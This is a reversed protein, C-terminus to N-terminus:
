EYIDFIEIEGIKTKNEKVYNIVNLPTQWNKNYQDKLILYKTEKSESIEKIINEEGNYGLNGKLLMDYNKNYRDMPIMYISATADLIKINPNQQIYKDVNEIQKELNETIPINNFHNFTSFSSICKFYVYGNIITYYILFLIAFSAFFTIFTENLMKNVFIKRSVKSLVKYLEYLIVIITPLAGILFHIEDSIPFCVVFIALGYVCFIYLIRDKEFVVSKIWEYVFTIPVIISLVGVINWNMLNKYSKYNSFGSVGKITYSIFDSFAHNALLYIIVISVPIIIGILRFTFSKLYIKFEEKNKVFLLKNGLLAICIFLGTTQKLAITLGALIGLFLDIKLNDKILRNEKKYFKIENYIILLVLFLTAFNYDICFLEKFLFGIFFVIIISIEKRIDLISCIKYITYIIASCLLASLLRMIILENITLKLILGCIMPLLPMQLMNFDKYPLLGDCMNRAFNYNWLEDLDNLPKVIITFLVALFILIFLLLNYVKEKNM